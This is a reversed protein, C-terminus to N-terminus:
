SIDPLEFFLELSKKSIQSTYRPFDFIQDTFSYVSYDAIEGNKYLHDISNKSYSRNTIVIRIFNTQILSM